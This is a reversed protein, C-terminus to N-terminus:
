KQDDKITALMKTYSVGFGIAYIEANDTERKFIKPRLLRDCTISWKENYFRFTNNKLFM